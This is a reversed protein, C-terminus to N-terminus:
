FFGFPTDDTVAGLRTLVMLKGGVEKKGHSGLNSINYHNLGGRRRYKVHPYGSTIRGYPIVWLKFLLARYSSSLLVPEWSLSVM